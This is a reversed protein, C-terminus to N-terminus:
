KISIEVQSEKSYLISVKMSITDIHIYYDMMIFIPMFLLKGAVNILVLVFVIGIIQLVGQWLALM